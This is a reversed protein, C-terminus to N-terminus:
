SNKKYITNAKKPKQHEKQQYLAWIHWILPIELTIQRESTETDTQMLLILGQGASGLYIRNKLCHLNLDSALQDPDASNAM